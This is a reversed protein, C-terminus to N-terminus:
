NIESIFNQAAELIDEADGKSSLNTNGNKRTTTIYISYELSTTDIYMQAKLSEEQGEVEKVYAIGNLKNVKDFGHGSFLGALQSLTEQKEKHKDQANNLAKSDVSELIRLKYKM